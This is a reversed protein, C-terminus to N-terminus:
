IYLPSTENVFANHKIVYAHGYVPVHLRPGTPVSSEPKYVKLKFVTVSRNFGLKVYFQGLTTKESAINYSKFSITAFFQRFLTRAVDRKLIPTEAM